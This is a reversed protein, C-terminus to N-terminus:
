RGQVTHDDVHAWWGVLSAATTLILTPPPQIFPLGTCVNQPDKWWELSIKIASPMLLVKHLKDRNPAYVTRLLPQLCCMHFRAHSIVFTGEARHGLLQLRNRDSPQISCHRNLHNSYQVQATRPLSRHIESTTRSDFNIKPYETTAGVARIGRYHKRLGVSCRPLIM